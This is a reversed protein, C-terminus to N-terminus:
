IHNVDAFQYSAKNFKEKEDIVMNYLINLSYDKDNSRQWKYYFDEKYKITTLNDLYKLSIKIYYNNYERFYINGFYDISSNKTIPNVM